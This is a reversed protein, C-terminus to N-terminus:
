NGLWAIVGVRVIIWGLRVHSPRPIRIPMLETFVGVFGFLIDDEDMSPSHSVISGMTVSFRHEFPKPLGTISPTKSKEPPGSIRFISMWHRISVQGIVVAVVACPFGASTK